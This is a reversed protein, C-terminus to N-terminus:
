ILHPTPWPLCVATSTDYVHVQHELPEPVAPTLTTRLHPTAQKQTVYRLSNLLVLDPDDGAPFLLASPRGPAKAKGKAQNPHGLDFGPPLWPRDFQLNVWSHGRDRQRDPIMLPPWLQLQQLWADVCGPGTNALWWGQYPVMVSAWRLGKIIRGAKTM